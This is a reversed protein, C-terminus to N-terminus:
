DTGVPAARDAIVVGLGRYRDRAEAAHAAADGPRGTRTEVDALVELARAIEFSADREVAEDLSARVTTEALALDGEAVLAVALVRLLPAHDIVGGLAADRRLAEDVTRRASRHDGAALQCEATRLDVEVVDADAAIEQLVARAQQLRALAGAHDGRAADLRALQMQTLGIGTRYGSARWARDAELIYELAKAAHGQDILVEGINYVGVAADVSNGTRERLLRAREYLEIAEDWRGDFYAFGGLNNLVVAQGSLDGLETYLELARESHQHEARGLSMYAWDLIFRAHAESAPDGVATACDIAALCERVAERSRGQAQRVAAYWALLRGRARRADVSSADGLQKLGKRVARVAESYRGTREAIWAEKLFLGAVPVADDGHLRRATRYAHLARDYVGARDTVDGLQEWVDALDSAHVDAGRRASNIARDFLAAAEVNAYKDLARRAAVRAFRWADDFRNAHFYHLSLLEAEAEPQGDQARAIADGARAHLERRRRYPLEEYAADRVLAHRFRLSGPAPMTLIADFARWFEDSDVPLPGDAIAELEQVLFSQGLVAAMRVVARREPDLRDIQSAVLANVNDPLSAVDGGDRLTELLEGLFLPNGAAREVLAAIDDARLPADDTAAVLARAADDMAIPELLVSHTHDATGVRYGGDIDRRTLLILAPRPALARVVQDLVASSADDMWHTDEIIVVVSPALAHNLFRATVERVKDPRFEPAIAEVEPTAPLDLDLPVGLLPLWPALHPAHLRVEETLAAAVHARDATPSQGLVDHLLWWFTAYPSAAEYPDCAVSFTPLDAALARFEETLRSKGIGPPGVLEVVRGSGARVDDLAGRLTALERERGVLPLVLATRTERRQTAGLTSAEVPRRKGKVMFPELPTTDFVTHAPQLIEPSAVIEGPAAKAMLRATLNVTDGMVTFTRRYAPGVEGAFVPGRHIGIRLPLRPRADIIRRVAALLHDADEGTARPVGSALILKGGDHDVDSALFTVGAHDVERQVITVLDALADAVAAPGQERMLEDTGDFHCFAICAQRHEPESGGSQVHRRIAAPVFAALPLDDADLVRPAPQEEVLVKARRLRYGAGLKPGLLRPELAAATAPSVVVQGASATGEMEVVTSVDPGALILERHSEGVLFCGFTGSHVGASMRLTVRGASTDIKGIHSLREHMAIASTAARAEHRPGTFLILLADGGFKLLSGGAAYALALLAGFCTEVAETVEEAGLKGHRALRESMKTFGSIDVFLMSGDILQWSRGDDERAWEITVRPLFPLLSRTPRETATM